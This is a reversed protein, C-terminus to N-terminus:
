PTIVSGETRPAVDPRQQQQRDSISKASTGYVYLMRGRNSEPSYGTLKIQFMLVVVMVMAISLATGLHLHCKCRHRVSTGLAQKIYQKIM